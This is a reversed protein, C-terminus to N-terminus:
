APSPPQHRDRRHPRPHSGAERGHDHTHAVAQQPGPHEVAGHGLGAPPIAGDADHVGVARRPVLCRRVAVGALPGLAVQAPGRGVDLDAAGADGAIGCPREGPGASGRRQQDDAVAVAAQAALGAPGGLLQDRDRRTGDQHEALVARGRRDVHGRPRHDDDPEVLPRAGPDHEVVCQPDRLHRPLRDLHDV